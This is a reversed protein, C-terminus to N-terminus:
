HVQTFPSSRGTVHTTQVQLSFSKRTPLGIVCDPIREIGCYSLDLHRVSEPTLTIRKVNRSGLRLWELLPLREVSSLHVEEMKKQKRLHLNQIRRRGLILSGLFFGIVFSTKMM